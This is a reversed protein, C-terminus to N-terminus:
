KIQKPSLSILFYGSNNMMAGIQTAKSGPSATMDINAEGPQLNLALVPLQSAIGKYFFEGTFFSVTHSLPLTDIELIFIKHNPAKM